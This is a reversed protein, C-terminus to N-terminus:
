ADILFINVKRIVKRFEFDLSVNGEQLQTEHYNATAFSENLGLITFKQKIKSVLEAASRPERDNIHQFYAKVEDQFEEKLAHVFKEAFVFDGNALNIVYSLNPSEEM